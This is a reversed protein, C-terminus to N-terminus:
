LPATEELPPAPPSSFVRGTDASLEIWTTGHATEVALLHLPPIGLAELDLDLVDRPTGTSLETVVDLAALGTAIRGATWCDDCVLTRETMAHRPLNLSLRTGCAKCDASRVFDRGLAVRAECGYM